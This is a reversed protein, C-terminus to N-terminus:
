LGKPIDTEMNTQKSLSEAPKIIDSVARSFHNIAIEKKRKNVDQRQM